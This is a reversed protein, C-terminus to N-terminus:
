RLRKRGATGSFSGAYNKRSFSNVDNAFSSSSMSSELTDGNDEETASDDADGVVFSVRQTEVNNSV